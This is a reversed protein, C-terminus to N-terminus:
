DPVALRTAHEQKLRTAFRLFRSLAVLTATDFDTLYAAGDGRSRPSFRRSWPM